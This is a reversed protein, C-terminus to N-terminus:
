SFVLYAVGVIGVGVAIGRLAPAWWPGGETDCDAAQHWRGRDHLTATDWLPSHCGHARAIVECTASDAKTM